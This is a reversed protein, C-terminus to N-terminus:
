LFEQLAKTTWVMRHGMALRMGPTLSKLDLHAVRHEHLFAVGELFQETFHQLGNLHPQLWPSFYDDLPDEMMSCDRKSHLHVIGHLKTTHNSAASKIESFHKQIKLEDTDDDDDDDDKLM